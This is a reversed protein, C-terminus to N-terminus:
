WGYYTWTPQFSQPQYYQPQYYYNPAYSQSPVYSANHFYNPQYYNAHMNNQPAQSPEAAAPAGGPGGPASGFYPFGQPGQMYGPQSMPGGQYFSEPGPVQGNRFLGWLFNNGGSQLHWNLGVGFKSNVWAQAPRETLAVLSLAFAGLLLMKKM